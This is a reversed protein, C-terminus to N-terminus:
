YMFLQNDEPSSVDFEGPIILGPVAWSEVGSHQRVYKRYEPAGPRLVNDAVVLSGSPLLNLEECLKFEQMYLDEVHDLFLFDIRELDGSAKLRKLTDSASGVVVKVVDSLGALDILNMAISSILPDFEISLIKGKKGSGTAQRLADGFLIASYGVYGGLEVLVAPKEQKILEAVKAGKDWGINILFDEKAAFEDIVRLIAAPSGRLEDLSPHDYIYKLLTAERGDHSEVYDDGLVEFKGITPYKAKLEASFPM